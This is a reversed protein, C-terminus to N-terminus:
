LKSIDRASFANITWDVVVRIKKQWSIMKSLYVTRWVWWAFRGELVFNAIEGIANWKGLSLLVGSSKYVFAKPEQHNIKQKINRAVVKAQKVAVQALAPLINEGQKFSAGDGLCFINPCDLLELYKNVVLRGAEDKTVRKEFDIDSPKVGAVWVINQSLLYEGNEFNIRNHSVEIVKANLLVKIGKKNLIGLSKERIKKPFQPLVESGNHVLIISIDEILDKPYYKSFTNKLFEQMESVLEVGTPGGGVVVFRLKNKREERDKIKSAEEILEICRNKIKIADNLSKLTFSNEKAGKINYFNTEAGHALVLYDFSVQGETTIVFNNINDVKTVKGSVLSSVCCGLVKRIPEIANEPNINGTAIEHLLPTFLFYNNENILTISIENKNHFIKHLNKLTYIGGFGGGVIVIKKINRDNIIM